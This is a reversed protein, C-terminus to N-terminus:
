LRTTCSSCWAAATTAATTVYSGASGSSPSGPEASSLCASCAPKLATVSAKASRPYVAWAVNTGRERGSASSCSGASTAWRITDISIVPMSRDTSPVSTATEAREMQTCPSEGPATAIATATRLARASAPTSIRGKAGHSLVAGQQGTPLVRHQDLDPSQVLHDGEPMGYSLGNRCPQGSEGVDDVDDGSGPGYQNDEGLLGTDGGQALSQGAQREGCGLLRCGAVLQDLNRHAVVSRIEVINGLQSAQADWLDDGSVGSGVPPDRETAERGAEGVQAPTVGSEGHRSALLWAGKHWGATHSQRPLETGDIRPRRWATPLQDPTSVDDDEVDIPIWGCQQLGVCHHAEEVGGSGAIPMSRASSTSAAPGRVRTCSRPRIPKAATPTPWEPAASLPANRRPARSSAWGYVAAARSTVRPPKDTRALPLRISASVPAGAGASM